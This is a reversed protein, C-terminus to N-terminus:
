PACVFSNGATYAGTLVTYLGSAPCVFTANPCFTGCGDDASALAASFLCPETGDCIRMVPDGTCTGTGGCGGCGVTVTEGATCAVGQLGAAIQWGCDRDFNTEFGACSSLVDGPVPPGPITVPITIANNSYDSEPLTHDPNIEIRLTYDGEAVGTIDVWQCDLGAGYIDSWGAQIGQFSCHYRPTPSATPSVRASDLLCFAQKHGTAVITGEGDLLQYRAYGEFHYHGHCASFEFDPQLTPDGLIMDANGINPTQTSFRLLRREGAGDVCGEVIACSDAEFVRTDFQLSDLAEDADVTLDPLPCSEGAGLTRCTGLFGALCCTGGTGCETDTTCFEPVVPEEEVEIVIDVQGPDMTVVDEGARFRLVVRTTEFSRVLFFQPNDSLYTAEVRTATGDANLRELFWGEQLFVFYDGPPVSATISTRDPDHETEFFQTSLPGQLMIVAERLRYVTGSPASGVLAM